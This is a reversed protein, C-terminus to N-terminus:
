DTFHRMTYGPLGHVEPWDQWVPVCHAPLDPLRGMDPYGQGPGHYDSGLSARLGFQHALQAFHHYQEPTHSGTVVEVGGGGLSRFEGLLTLLNTRGLDYRGPHALVAMGGGGVIWGVAEELAAWCHEQYGPKGKVLFRRFVSSVDRAHGQDVLFRAFHTRGIIGRGAHDRAGQLSGHIGARALSGAMGEARQHRGARIGALGQVLPAHDPTIRLGLVHITRGRWTVSIEVGNILVVDHNQAAHRAETLGAVDDHDTLALVRVGRAAAHAVLGAPALTGDSIDSHSHLDIFAPM